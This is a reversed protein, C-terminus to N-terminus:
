HRGLTYVAFVLQRLARLISRPKGGGSKGSELLNEDCARKHPNNIPALPALVVKVTYVRYFFTEYIVVCVGASFSASIHPMATEATRKEKANRLKPWPVRGKRHREPNERNEGV